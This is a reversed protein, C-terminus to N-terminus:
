CYEMFLHYQLFTMVQSKRDLYNTRDLISEQSTPYHYFEYYHCQLHISTVLHVFAADIFILFFWERLWHIPMLVGLLTSRRAPKCPVRRAHKINNTQMELKCHEYFQFIPVHFVPFITKFRVSGEYRNRTYMDAIAYRSRHHVMVAFLTPKNRVNEKLIREEHIGVLIWEWRISQSHKATPWSPSSASKM